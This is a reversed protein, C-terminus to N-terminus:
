NQRPFEFHLYTSKGLKVYKQREPFYDLYIKIHLHVEINLKGTIDIDM